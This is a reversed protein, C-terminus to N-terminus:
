RVVVRFTKGGFRVLFVGRGIALRAKGKVDGGFVKRGDVTYVAAHGEGRLILHGGSVEVSVDAGKGRESVETPDDWSAPTRTAGIYSYYVVSDGYYLTVPNWFYVFANDVGSGLSIDNGGLSWTWPNNYADVWYAHYAFDPITVLGSDPGYEYVAFIHYLGSPPDTESTRLYDFTDPVPNIEIERTVMPGCHMSFAPYFDCEYHAPHDTTDLHTDYQWRVGVDNPFFDNNIVITKHWLRSDDPNSGTIWFLEKVTLDDGGRTLHYIFTVSKIPGSEQCIVQEAYAQLSDLDYGPYTNDVWGGYTGVYDTNSNGSHITTYSSWANPAGYLITVYPDTHLSGTRATYAGFADDSSNSINLNWELYGNTITYDTGIYSCGSYSVPLVRKPYLASRIEHAARYAEKPNSYLDYTEAVLRVLTTKDMSKVEDPTLGTRALFDDLSVSLGIILLM